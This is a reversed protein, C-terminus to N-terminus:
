LFRCYRGLWYALLYDTGTYLKAGDGGGDLRYPNEKWEFTSPPREEVPLPACAQLRGNRARV